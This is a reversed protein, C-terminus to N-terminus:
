GGYTTRLIYIIEGGHLNEIYTYGLGYRENEATFWWAEREHNHKVNLAVEAYNHRTTAHDNNAKNESNGAGNLGRYTM